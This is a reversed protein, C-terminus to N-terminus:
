KIKLKGYLGRNGFCPRLYQALQYTIKGAEYDKYALLGGVAAAQNAVIGVPITIGIIRSIRALDDNDKQSLKQQPKATEPPASKTPKPTPTSPKVPVAPPPTSPTPTPSHRPGAAAQINQIDGDKDALVTVKTMEPTGHQHTDMHHSELVDNLFMDATRFFDVPQGNDMAHPVGVPIDNVILYGEAHLEETLAEAVNNLESFIYPDVAIYAYFSNHIARDHYHNATNTLMDHIEDHFGENNMSHGIYDLRHFNHAADYVFFAYLVDFHHNAADEPLNPTGDANHVSRITWQRLDNVPNLPYFGCIISDWRFAVTSALDTPLNLFTYYRVSQVIAIYFFLILIISKM